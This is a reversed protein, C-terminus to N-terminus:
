FFLMVVGLACLLIGTMRNLLPTLAPRAKLTVYRTIARRLIQSDEM